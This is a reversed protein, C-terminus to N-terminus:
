HITFGESKECFDALEEVKDLFVESAPEARKNISLIVAKKDNSLKDWEERISRQVFVYGRFLKAMAWAERASIKFGDNSVPSGPGRSGNYIYTGPNATNDGYDLLYGAGTENLIVPWTFIMGQIAAIKKNKPELDYGM